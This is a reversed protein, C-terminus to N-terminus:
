KIPPAFVCATYNQGLCVRFYSLQYLVLKGLQPFLRTFSQNVPSKKKAKEWKCTIQLCVASKFSSEPRKSRGLPVNLKPQFFHPGIQFRMKGYHLVGGKGRNSGFIHPTPVGGRGRGNGRRKTVLLIELLTKLCVRCLLVNM